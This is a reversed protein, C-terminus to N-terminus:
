WHRRRRRRHLIATTDLQQLQEADNDAAQTASIGGFGSSGFRERRRGRSSLRAAFLAAPQASDTPQTAMWRHHTAAEAEAEANADALLTDPSLAPSHDPLLHPLPNHSHPPSQTPHNRRQPRHPRSPRKCCSSRCQRVLRARSGRARSHAARKVPVARVVRHSTRQRKHCHM